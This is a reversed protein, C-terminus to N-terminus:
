NVVSVSAMFQLRVSSFSVHNRTKLTVTAGAIPLSSLGRESRASSLPSDEDVYKRLEGEDIENINEPLQIQDNDVPQDGLLQEQAPDDNVLNEARKGVIELQEAILSSRQFPSILTVIMPDIM